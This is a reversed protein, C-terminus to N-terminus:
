RQAAWTVFSSPGDYPESSPNIVFGHRGIVYDSGLVLFRREGTESRIGGLTAICEVFGPRHDSNLAAIVVWDNRHRKEFEQADRAHSQDEQLTVSGRKPLNNSLWEQQAGPFAEVDTTYRNDEDAPAFLDEVWVIGYAQALEDGFSAHKALMRTTTLARAVEWWSVQPDQKRPKYKKWVEAQEDQGAAAITRLQQENPM